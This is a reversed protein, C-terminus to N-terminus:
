LESQYVGTVLVLKKLFKLYDMALFEWVVKVVSCRLYVRLNNLNLVLM